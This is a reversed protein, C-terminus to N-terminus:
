SSDFDKNWGKERKRKRERERARGGTRDDKRSVPLMSDVSDGKKNDYFKFFALM